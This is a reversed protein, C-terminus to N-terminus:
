GGAGELREALGAYGITPLLAAGTERAEAAGVDVGLGDVIRNYFNHLACVSVADFVAQEDWGAALVADIDAQVVRSPTRTLKRVLHLVPKLREDVGSADVDEALEDFLREDIGFAAAVPKHSEYCFECANQSSGYAFMLEREAVSFPSPGRLVDDALRLMLAARRPHRQFIDPLNTPGPSSPLYSM